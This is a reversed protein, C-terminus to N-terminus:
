GGNQTASMLQNIVFSALGYSALIILLGVVGASIIKKAEGVKDDNGAATMWKFGGLLIIVVAIIGLFGLIIKIVSSAIDRPDRNGLGISNAYNLGTDINAASVQLALMPMFVMVALAIAFLNRAIKKNM